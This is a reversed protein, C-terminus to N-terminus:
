VKCVSYAVSLLSRVAIHLVSDLQCGLGLVLCTGKVCLQKTGKWQGQGRWKNCVVECPRGQFRFRRVCVYMGVIAHALFHTVHM